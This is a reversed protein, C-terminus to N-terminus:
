SDEKGTIEREDSLPPPPQWMGNESPPAKGPLWTEHVHLWTPRGNPKDQFWSSAIRATETEGVTQWEEYCCLVSTSNPLNSMIQVNRCQITFIQDKRCGYASKLANVLDSRRTMVGQPNILCFSEEMSQEVFAFNEDTEEIKGTFWQVFFDHLRHIENEFRDPSPPSMARAKSIPWAALLLGFGTLVASQIMAGFPYVPSCIGNPIGVADEDFEAV